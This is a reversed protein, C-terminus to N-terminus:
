DPAPAPRDVGLATLVRQRVAAHNMRTTELRSDPEPMLDPANLDVAPWRSQARPDTRVFLVSGTDVHVLQWDPRRQLWAILEVSDFASSLVVSGFGYQADLRQFARPRPLALQAFKEAGFIELRGDVMVEYDPYLRWNLYGGSM